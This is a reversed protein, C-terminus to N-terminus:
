LFNLKGLVQLKTELDETKKLMKQKTVLDATASKYFYILFTKESVLSCKSKLLNEM